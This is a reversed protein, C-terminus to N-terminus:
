LLKRSCCETSLSVPRVQGWTVSVGPVGERPGTDAALLEVPEANTPVLFGLSQNDPTDEWQASVQEM